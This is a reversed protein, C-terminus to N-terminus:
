GSDAAPNGIQRRWCFAFRTGFFALYWDQSVFVNVHIFLCFISILVQWFCRHLLIRIKLPMKKGTIVSDYM